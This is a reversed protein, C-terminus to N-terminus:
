IENGTNVKESGMSKEECPFGALRSPKLALETNSLLQYAPYALTMFSHANNCGENTPEFCLDGIFFSAVGFCLPSL